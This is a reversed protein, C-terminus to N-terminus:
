AMLIALLPRLEPDNSHTYLIQGLAWVMFTLYQGQDQFILISLYPEQDCAM